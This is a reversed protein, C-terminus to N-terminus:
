THTDSRDRRAARKLKNSLYGPNRGLARSADSLSPFVTIKGGDVVVVQIQIGGYLGTVFGHQINKKLTIWELNEARNNLTNGDKHNVTLGDCFGDCWALAVLRSVLWTKGKCDKWLNVRADQRGHKSTQIKQKIIRQKWVRKAYRANSTTKGECTRVRGCNSVQYMGEYGPIDKWLETNM